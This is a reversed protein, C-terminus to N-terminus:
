PRDSSPSKVDDIHNIVYSTFYVGQAPDSRSADINCSGITINRSRRLEMADSSNIIKKIFNVERNALTKGEYFGAEEVVTNKMWLRSHSLCTVGEESWRAETSRKDPPNTVLPPSAQGPYAVDRTFEIPIGTLTRAVDGLYTASFMRLAATRAPREDEFVVVGSLDTHALAGGLCAYEFWELSPRAPDKGTATGDALYAQPIDLASLAPLNARRVNDDYEADPIIEVYESLHDPHIKMLKHVNDKALKSDFQLITPEPPFFHINVETFAHDLKHSCLSEHPSKVSSLFYILREKAHRNPTLLSTHDGPDALIDTKAVQEILVTERHASLVFEVGVLQTGYCLRKNHNNNDVVILQYGELESGPGVDSPQIRGIAIRPDIGPRNLGCAISGSLVRSTAWRIWKFPFPNVVPSNSSCPCNEARASPAGEGVVAIISIAMSCLKTYM